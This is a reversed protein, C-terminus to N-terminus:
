EGTGKFRAVNRRAQDNRPDLRVAEAFAAQAASRDGLQLYAVGLNNAAESYGPQLALARQFHPIAAAPQATRLAILGLNYHPKAFRPDATIARMLYDAALPARGLMMAANSASVAANAAAPSLPALALAADAHRLTPEALGRREYHIALLTHAVHHQPDLRLAHTFLTESDRWTATYRHAQLALAAVAALSAVLGAIRAARGLREAPPLAALMLLLGIMPIYMYRDARTHEGIAVLGIVPLLSLLFWLWGALVAGRLRLAGVTLLALAAGAGSAALLDPPTFRYLFSLGNPAITTVLYMAYALLSNGIRTDIGVASVPRVAGGASQARLTLWACALALIVFPLKEIARRLWLTDAFLPRGPTRLRAYPWADLVLLLGPLTVLMPKAMLGLLALLWALAYHWRGGTRAYRDWALLTLLLFLTSLVDKREALWAVSEVHLPHIAFVAAALTAVIWTVGYRQLLAAVLLSNAGHLAVNMLHMRGADMGFLTVDLQHSWWTLPHWNAMEFATLAWQWTQLTLGAQVNPNDRVYGADDWELFDFHATQAFVAALLALVALLALALPLRPAAAPRPPTPSPDTPM